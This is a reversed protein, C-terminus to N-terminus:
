VTLSLRIYQLVHNWTYIPDYSFNFMVSKISDIVRDKDSFTEVDDKAIQSIAQMLYNWDNHFNPNSIDNVSRYIGQSKYYGIQYFKFNQESPFLYKSILINGNIIDIEDKTM